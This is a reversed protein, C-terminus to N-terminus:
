CCIAKNVFHACTLTGIRIGMSLIKSKLLQIDHACFDLDIGITQLRRCIINPSSGM